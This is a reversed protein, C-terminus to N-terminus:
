KYNKSQYEMASGVKVGQFCGSAWLSLMRFGVVTGAAEM